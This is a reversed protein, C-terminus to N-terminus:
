RKFVKTPEIINNETLRGIALLNNNKDLIQLNTNKYTNDINMRISKGNLIDNTQDPGLCIKELQLIQVPSILCTSINNKHISNPEISNKYSFYNGIRTRQLSSIVAYTNLMYGLDRAISRIYTGSSCHIQLMLKNEAYSILQISYVEVIKEKIEELTIQGMRALKYAREGKINVASFLPPKQKIKGIFQELQTTIASLSPILKSTKLVKGSTDNSDTETGFTIESLYVKDSPLYQFLRTANNIGLVLVGTAIPDLTGFHGIRKIGLSKRLSLVIDHSTCGAPKNINLFGFM